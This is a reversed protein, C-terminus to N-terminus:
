QTFLTLLDAIHDKVKLETKQPFEENLTQIIKDAMDDANLPDFVAKPKVVAHVYPLDAALIECGAEAGEILGLGFSEVVSPYVVYAASLYETFLDERKILGHNIITPIRQQYFQIKELLAPYTESVTLHLTAQKNQQFVKEWANLLTVHNKQANGDSVYLFKQNNRVVHHPVLEKIVHPYFPILQTKAESFTYKKCFLDRVFGSQFIYYDTNQKFTKIFASKIWLNAKDVPTHWPSPQVFLLNHFYTFVQANVRVTPPVNAFCFVKTFRNKHQQYFRHRAWISDKLYLKRDVPVATFQDECRKDFLFFADINHALIKEVLYNLLVRGGSNNIYISDILIM